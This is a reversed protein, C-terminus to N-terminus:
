HTVIHNSYNIYLNHGNREDIFSKLTDLVGKLTTGAKLSRTGAEQIVPGDAVPDSFPIGLEIASVGCSELFLVQEKLADLGGDGAMIYPVFIKENNTLKNQLLSELRQKSM